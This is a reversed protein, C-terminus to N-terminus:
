AAVAVADAATVAVKFTDRRAKRPPVGLGADLYDLAIQDGDIVSGGPTRAVTVRGYAGVPLQRLWTKEAEALKATDKAKRDLEKFRDAHAEIEEVAPLEEAPLVRDAAPAAALSTRGLREAIKGVTRSAARATRLSLRDLRRDATRAARRAATADTRATL